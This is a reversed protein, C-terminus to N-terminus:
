NGFMPGAPGLHCSYCGFGRRTLLSFQSKGLAEAMEPVLRHLKLQTTEPHSQFEPGLLLTGSLRPLHNTPMHFNETRFGQGHCLTCDVQAYREPRWSQFVSAAIPLVVQEMHRKRQSIDMDSWEVPRGAMTPAQRTKPNCGLLPLLLVLVLVGVWIRPFVADAPRSIKTMGTDM